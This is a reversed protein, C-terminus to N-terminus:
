QLNGLDSAPRLPSLQLPEPYVRFGELEKRSLRAPNQAEPRRKGVEAYITMGLAPSHSRKRSGSRMVSAQKPPAGQLRLSAPRSPQVVSYLTNETKRSTSAASQAQITSYITREEGPSTHEQEKNRRTPLSNIEEYITLLEKPGPESRKRRRRWVCLGTLSGLTLTLILLLVIVLISLSDVEHCAQALELTRAAWSVPNSVNCTYSHLDGFGVQEELESLNRPTQILESGRYWAYSVDGGRAVSCSLTVQCRRGDLAKWQELLRPKEVPDFVSIQFRHKQVSGDERTVELLYLGSDQQQTANILLSLSDNMFSLRDNFRNSVWTVSSGSTNKWTLIVRCELETHLQVKWELSDVRTLASPPQLRVPAGSLGAVRDASDPSAQGQRGELLLLLTLPLAQGLM